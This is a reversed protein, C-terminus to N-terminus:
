GMSVMKWFVGGGAGRRVLASYPMNLNWYQNSPLVPLANVRNKKGHWRWWCLCLWFTGLSCRPNRLAMRRYYFSPASKSLFAFANFIRPICFFYEFFIAVPKSSVRGPHFCSAPVADVFFVFNQNREPHHYVDHLSWFTTRVFYTWGCFYDSSHKNLKHAICVGNITSYVFM